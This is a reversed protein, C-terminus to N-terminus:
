MERVVGAAAAAVTRGTPCGKGSLRPLHVRDYFGTGDSPRSGGAAWRVGVPDDLEVENAAEGDKGDHLDVEEGDGDGVGHGAGELIEAFLETSHAYVEEKDEAAEEDAAQEDLLEDLGAGQAGAAEKEAADELDPWGVVEVDEELYANAPMGEVGEGPLVDEVDLVVGAGGEAVGPAEGDFLVEIEEQRQEEGGDVGAGPQAGCHRGDKEAEAQEDEGSAQDGDVGEVLAVQLPVGM